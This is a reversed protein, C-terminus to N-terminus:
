AAVGFIIRDAQADQNFLVALAHSYAFKVAERWAKAESFQVEVCKVISSADEEDNENLGLGNYVCFKEVIPDAPASVTVLVEGGCSIQLFFEEGMTQAELAYNRRAVENTDLNVTHEGAQYAQPTV